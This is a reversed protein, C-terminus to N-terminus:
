GVWVGAIGTQQWASLEHEAVIPSVLGVGTRAPSCDPGLGIRM